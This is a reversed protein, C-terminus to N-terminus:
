GGTASAGPVGAGTPSGQNLDRAGNGAARKAGRGEEIGDRHGSEGARREGEEM